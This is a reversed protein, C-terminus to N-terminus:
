AQCELIDHWIYQMQRSWRSMARAGLSRITVITRFYVACAWASSCEEGQMTKTWDSASHFLLRSFHTPFVGSYRHAPIDPLDLNPEGPISKGSCTPPLSTRHGHLAEGGSPPFSTQSPLLSFDVPDWAPCISAQANPINNPWFAKEPHFVVTIRHIISKLIIINLNKNHFNSLIILIFVVM